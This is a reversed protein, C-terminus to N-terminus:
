IERRVALYLFLGDSRPSDDLKKLLGMGQLRKARHLCEVFSMETKESVSLLTRAGDGAHSLIELDKRDLRSSSPTSFVSKSATLLNDQRGESSGEGRGGSEKM